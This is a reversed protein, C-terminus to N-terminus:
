EKQDNHLPSRSYAANVAFLEVAGTNDNTLKIKAHYDRIKDGNIEDQSLAMLIDGVSVGSADSLTVETRSDVSNITASLNTESSSALLYAADGISFPLNSIRSTIKVKNGDKSAVRGLVVKHSMNATSNSTIDKPIVTYYMGEREEYMPETINTTQQTNSVVASWTDNGELSLANYVKVFSPNEKSVVEVM